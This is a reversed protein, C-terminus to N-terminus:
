NESPKQASDVVIVEVPAKDARLHLGLQQQLATFISPFTAAAPLEPEDRSIRADLPRQRTYELHIDFRGALGTKDVVPRDLNGALARGAFETLTIGFVNLTRNRGDDAERPMGCHYLGGAELTDPKGLDLPVCAGDKAPTLKVGGSAAVMVYVPQERMALHVKLHFREELLAKLLPGAMRATSLNPDAKAIVDFRDVDLWDPGGVVELFRSNLQDGNMAGYAMTALRRLTMCTLELKGPHISRRTECEANPKVSAVDFAPQACAFRVVALITVAARRV